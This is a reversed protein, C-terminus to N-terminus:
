RAIRFNNADTIVAIANSATDEITSGTAINLLLNGAPAASALQVKLSKGDAALTAATSGLVTTPTSAGDSISIKPGATAPTATVAEDFYLTVFHDTGNEVTYRASVVEPAKKDAVVLTTNAPNLTMLNGAVTKVNNMTVQVNASGTVLALPLDKKEVASYDINLTAASAPTAQTFTLVAKEPIAANAVTYNAKNDAAGVKYVGSADFGNVMEVNATNGFTITFALADTATAAPGGNAVTGTSAVQAVPSTLLPNKTQTFKIVKAAIKNGSTDQVSGQKIALNYEGNPLATSTSLTVKHDNTLSGSITVAHTKSSDKADSLIFDAAELGEVAESFKVELETSTKVTVSQMEPAVTEKALSISATKESVVNGALDTLLSITASITASSDGTKIPTDFLTVRYTMKDEQLEIDKVQLRINDKDRVVVANPNVTDAMEENFVIDFQKTNVANLTFTPKTTDLTVTASGTLNNAVNGAFDLVDTLTITYSKGAEFKTTGNAFSVTAKGDAVTVIANQDGIKAVSVGQIPEDFEVTVSAVETQNTVAKIEKISPATTDNFVVNQSYDAITDSATTKVDKTSVVVSEGQTRAAAM